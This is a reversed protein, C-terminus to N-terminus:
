GMKGYEGGAAIGRHGSFSILRISEAAALGPKM